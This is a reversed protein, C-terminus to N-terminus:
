FLSNSGQLSSSDSTITQPTLGPNRRHGKEGKELLLVVLIAACPTAAEMLFLLPEGQSATSTSRQTVASTPMHGEESYM